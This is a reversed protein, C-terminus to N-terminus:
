VWHPDMVAQSSSASTCLTPSANQIGDNSEKQKCQKKCMSSTFKVLAFWGYVKWFNALIPNPYSRFDSRWMGFRGINKPSRAESKRLIFRSFTSPQWTECKWEASCHCPLVVSEHRWRKRLFTITMWVVGHVCLSRNTRNTGIILIRSMNLQRSNCRPIRFKASICSVTVFLLM